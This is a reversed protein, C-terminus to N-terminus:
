GTLQMVCSIRKWKWRMNQRNLIVTMFGINKFLDRHYELWKSCIRYIDNEKESYARISIYDIIWYIARVPYNKIHIAYYDSQLDSHHM